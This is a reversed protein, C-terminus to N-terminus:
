HPQCVKVPSLTFAQGVIVGPQLARMPEASDFALLQDRSDM